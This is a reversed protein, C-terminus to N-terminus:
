FSRWISIEITGLDRVFDYQVTEFGGRGRNAYIYIFKGDLLKRFKRSHISALEAAGGGIVDIIVHTAARIEFIASKGRGICM